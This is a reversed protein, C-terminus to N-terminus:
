MQEPAEMGLLSLGLELVRATLDCLGLRSHRLAEDDVLVRCAEYFTTFSTALEFLYTCLKSPSCTEATAEVAAAFGLLHLALAREQPEGLLPVAGPPPPAVGARRFISRIRAHAYQLYPGTDGEFALMRDWDFIYDRARETSLDAYKVAGIGLARAIASQREPSLDSARAKLASEAREVGETLLDILRESEGARSAMKKGDTGLVFGFSVHEAVVGPPLYGALEAAAFVLRFHLKQEQAVVYLLRTAGIRRTRDRVAALDTAPYGYGGDSKRVILPLPEGQRNEFGAPFVCLAGDNEVLLGKEDLESVVVSLVPNYFSEGVVDEPTLLVGLLEYVEAAHRMSETVFIRWLHLTEDDGGQLLVVRNRCREAFSPDSDFQRRAAAYFENLDRVSFSEAKAAGDVDLLHEILMGFPTGWDGIHNERRVDHGLFGLVRALADGILTSRLHGVHMEKAVNPASYDIVVTEPHAAQEVGLRADASLGAVQGALFENSLTLNIFGPGSVEVEACIDNLTAAAVIEDAVERPPRGLAKGLPLAGNVQFDARDSPRLVPDAGPQLADFAAQLRQLLVSAADPM